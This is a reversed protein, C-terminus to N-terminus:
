SRRFHHGRAHHVAPDYEPLDLEDLRREHKRWQDDDPFPFHDGPLFLRKRGAAPPGLGKFLAFVALTCVIGALAALMGWGSWDRRLIWSVAGVAGFFALWFAKLRYWNAAIDEFMGRQKREREPWRLDSRLFALMRRLAQWTEAPVNIPHDTVEHYLHRLVDDMERVARDESRLVVSSHVREDFEGTSIQGSMYARIARSLEKRAHRDMSM